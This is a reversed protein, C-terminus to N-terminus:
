SRRNVAGLNTKVERSRCSIEGKLFNNARHSLELKHQRDAEPFSVIWKFVVCSLSLGKFFISTRVWFRNVTWLKVIIPWLEHFGGSKRSSHKSAQDQALLWLNESNMLAPESMNTLCKNQVPGIWGRTTAIKQGRNWSLGQVKALPYTVTDLKHNLM